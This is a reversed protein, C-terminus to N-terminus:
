GGQPDPLIQACCEYLEVVHVNDSDVVPAGWGVEERASTDGGTVCSHGIGVSAEHSETTPAATRVQAQDRFCLASRGM